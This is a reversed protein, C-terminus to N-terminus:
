CRCNSEAQNMRNSALHGKIRVGSNPMSKALFFISFILPDDDATLDFFECGENSSYFIDKVNGFKQHMLDILM